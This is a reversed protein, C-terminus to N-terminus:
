HVTGSSLPHAPSDSGCSAFWVLSSHCCPDRQLLLGDRPACGELGSVIKGRQSLVEMKFCALLIRFWLSHRHEPSQHGKQFSLSTLSDYRLMGVSLAPFVGVEGLGERPTPWPPAQTRVAKNCLAESAAPWFTWRFRRITRKHRHDSSSFLSQVNTPASSVPVKWSCGM